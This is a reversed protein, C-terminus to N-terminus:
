QSGLSLNLNTQLVKLEQAAAVAALRDPSPSHSKNTHEADKEDFTVNLLDIALSPDVCLHLVAALLVSDIGGSFLVGITCAKGVTPDDSAGLRSVRRSVAAQLLSLFEPASRTPHGFRMANGNIRARRALTLRSDPWTSYMPAANLTLPQLYLGGIPLETWEGGTRGQVTSCSALAFIGSSRDISLLSRRGFPDRGYCIANLGAHYFTFAYPGQVASLEEVVRDLFDQHHNSHLSALEGLLNAVAVTDSEGERLEIGGFVEGNWQLVNGSSDRFPQLVAEPGQIHLVSSIFWLESGIEASSPISLVAAHTGRHEIDDQLQRAMLGAHETSAAEQAFLVAIGCM